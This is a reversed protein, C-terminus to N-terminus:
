SWRRGKGFIFSRHGYETDSFKRHPREAKLPIYVRNFHHSCYQENDLTKIGCCQWGRVSPDGHIWKCGNGFDDLPGVAMPEDPVVVVDTKPSCKPKPKSGAIKVKVVPGRIIVVDMKTRKNEGSEYDIRGQDYGSRAMAGICSNKSRYIGFQKKMQESIHKYSWGCKKKGIVFDLEKKTWKLGDAHRTRKIM